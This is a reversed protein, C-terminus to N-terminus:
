NGLEKSKDFINKKLQPRKLSVIVPKVGEKGVKNKENNSKLRRVNEIDDSSIEINNNKFLDIVVNDIAEDKENIQPINFLVINKLRDKRLFIQMLKECNEIRRKLVENERKLDAVTKEYIKLDEIIRKNNDEITKFNEEYHEVKEKTDKVDKAMRRIVKDISEESESKEETMILGASAGDTLFSANAATVTGYPKVFAPKLKALQERTSVRVGNDKNIVTNKGPVICFNYKLFCSIHNLLKNELVFYLKGIFPHMDTLHGQQHAQAAFTHSRLAYEDQEQRSVNFAAALRDGSHGMTENTSFEAVAPLQM